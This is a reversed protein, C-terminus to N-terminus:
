KSTKAVHITHPDFKEHLETLIIGKHREYNRSNRLPYFSGKNHNVQLWTISSVVFLRFTGVPKSPDCTVNTVLLRHQSPGAILM